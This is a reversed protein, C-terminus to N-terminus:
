SCLPSLLAEGHGAGRPSHQSGVRSVTTSVGGPALGPHVHSHPCRWLPTTPVVLAHCRPVSPCLRGAGGGRVPGREATGPCVSQCVGRCPAGPAGLSGGGAPCLTKPLAMPFTCHSGLGAGAQGQWPQGPPTPPRSTVPSSPPPCVHVISDGRPVAGVHCRLVSPHLPCASHCPISERCWPQHHWWLPRPGPTAHGLDGGMAGWVPPDVRPRESSGGRGPWAM